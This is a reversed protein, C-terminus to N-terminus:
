ILKDAEEVIVKPTTDIVLRYLKGELRVDSNEVNINGYFKTIRMTENNLNFSGKKAVELNGYSRFKLSPLTLNSINLKQFGMDKTFIILLGDKQNATLTDSVVSKVKGDLSLSSNSLQMKGTYGSLKVKSNNASNFNINNVRMSRGTNFTIELDTNKLNLELRPIQLDASFSFSANKTPEIGSLITKMFDPSYPFASFALVVIVLLILGIFIYKIKNKLHELPNEHMAKQYRDM